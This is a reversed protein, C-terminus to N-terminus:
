CVPVHYELCRQISSPLNVEALSLASLLLHKATCVRTDLSINATKGDVTVCLVSGDKSSM